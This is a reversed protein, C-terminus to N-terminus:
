YYFIAEVKVFDDQRLAYTVDDNDINNFLVATVDLTCWDSLRRSAELTTVVSSNETDKVIGFLLESSAMDNVALRVGLMVDNNYPTAYADDREDFIYETILGIDMSSDLVGVFTYEFGGVYAGFSRGQGSRYLGEFKWLWRGAVYQLDVGTQKMQEYYPALRVEGHKIIPSLLPQRSTGQFYYVGFDVDGLTHSYRLTFDMHSQEAGSEYTVEDTDIVLPPRLRGEDGAYTRERFYPLLFGELVGFDRIFTLQLMPQGLKEEGDLSEVLDTQNVVDVLHVFECSGWFVKSIGVKVEFGDGVHLYNLERIDAHSREADASDIRLFPKFIFSSGSDLEHYLEVDTYLSGDHDKQDDYLPSHFFARGELGISGTFEMASCWSCGCSLLVMSMFSIKQLVDLKLYSLKGVQEINNIHASQINHLSGPNLILFDPDASREEPNQSRIELKQIRIESKQSRVESKQSANM